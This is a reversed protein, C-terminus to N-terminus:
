STFEQNSIAVTPVCVLALEVKIAVISDVILPMCM